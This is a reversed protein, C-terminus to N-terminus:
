SSSLFFLTARAAMPSSKYMWPMISFFPPIQPFQSMEAQSVPPETMLM